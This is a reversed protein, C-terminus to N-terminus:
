PVQSRERKTAAGCRSLHPRVLGHAQRTMWYPRLARGRASASLKRDNVLAIRAQGALETDDCKQQRVLSRTGFSGFCSPTAALSIPTRKPIAGDKRRRSPALPSM